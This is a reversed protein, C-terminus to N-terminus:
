KLLFMVCLVSGILISVLCAIVAAVQRGTTETIEDPKSILDRLKEVEAVTAKHKRRAAAFGMADKNIADPDDICRLLVGLKGDGAAKEVQRRAIERQPRNHFRSFAPEMLTSLWACLAPVPEVVFRAQIDALITLMAAIIRVPDASSTLQVFVADELRRHRTAIFAIIHRDFPDRPRDRRGAAVELAILLEAPTTARYDIVIPSLCHLYPNMEYLVREIGFAAGPKELLGRLTDFAQVLPVLEARFESQINAWFAPLQWAVIEALPQTGDRRLFADALAVALGDPMVSKDRYRIPASPDLAMAVRAVERDIATKGGSSVAGEAAVAVAEALEEELLCRRLWRDLEGSDILVAAAGGNRVLLRALGRCHWNEQGGFDLPRSARKPPQAQKPSLRRGSIWLDLQNLGWRQKPDDILLGRLPEALNTPVRANGVLAAYSGREIRTALLANDDVEQAPNRGLALFVLTVGFAFLDDAPSGTGRGAPEAMSREITEFVMPQGIGPPTSACEGLVLGSNGGADRLFLNTPRIGGHTIGRGALEKLVPVLSHLVSRQIQDEPVPEAVTDLTARLRRGLPREFVMALRRSGDPGWPVVGQDLFRVLGPNDVTSLATPADIRPPVQGSCIIAFCEAKRGRLARAAYASGAVGDLTPIAQAPLIEFRDGLAVPEQTGEKRADATHSDSPM